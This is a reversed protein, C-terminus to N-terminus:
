EELAEKISIPKFPKRKMKFITWLFAYIGSLVIFLLAVTYIQAKMVPDPFINIMVYIFGAIGLVQPIPYFPTKFPRDMDPYRFRLVIVNIHAIIYCILWSFCAAMILIIVAEIGAIGILIPITIIAGMFIISVWPTRFRPHVLKFIAPIEGSHGMGYLMRSVGAILTNITSATAMLSVFGIWYKGVNGFIAIAIDVHPNTSEALRDMPIYRLAAAGFLIKVILIIFLGWIMARPVNKAPEKAEEVLPTLFEVGIFLWIGLAVLSFVEWGMPNFGPVTIGPPAKGLGLLGVIGIIFLSGIMATTLVLQVKAFVEIGWINLVMLVLVLIVSFFMPPFGPWFVNTFVFGAIAAEAPAAFVQVLVYGCITAMIAPVTGISVLTYSSISGARPMQCALESFTFAQFLNLIFAALIALIFGYGAIGMGQGLSVLTTTAVVIGVSVALCSWFGMARKLEEVM